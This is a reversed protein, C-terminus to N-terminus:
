AVRPAPRGVATIERVGDLRHADDLSLYPAQGGDAEIRHVDVEVVFDGERALRRTAETSM